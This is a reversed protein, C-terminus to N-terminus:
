HFNNHLFIQICFNAHGVHRLIYSILDKIFFVNTKLNTCGKVSFHLIQM